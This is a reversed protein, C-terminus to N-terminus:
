RWSAIELPTHLTPSFFPAGTNIPKRQLLVNITSCHSNSVADQIPM